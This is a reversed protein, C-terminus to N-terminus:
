AHLIKYYPNDIKRQLSSLDTITYHTALISNLRALERATSLAKLKPQEVPKGVNAIATMFGYSDEFNFEHKFNKWLTLQQGSVFYLSDEAFYVGVGTKNGIGNFLLPYEKNNYVVRVVDLETELRKKMEDYTREGDVGYNAEVDLGSVKFLLCDSYGNIDEHTFFSPEPLLIEECNELILNM